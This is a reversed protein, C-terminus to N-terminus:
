VRDVDVGVRESSAVVVAFDHCRMESALRLVSKTVFVRDSTVCVSAETV